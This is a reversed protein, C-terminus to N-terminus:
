FHNKNQMKQEPVKNVIPQQKSPPNNITNAQKAKGSMSTRNRVYENDWIAKLAKLLVPELIRCILCMTAGAIVVSSDGLLYTRM